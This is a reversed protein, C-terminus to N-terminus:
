GLARGSQAVNGFHHTAFSNFRGGTWGVHKIPLQNVTLRLSHLEYFKEDILFDDNTPNGM